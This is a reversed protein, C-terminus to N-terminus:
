SFEKASWEFGYEDISDWLENEKENQKASILKFLEKRSNQNKSRKNNENKLIKESRVNMWVFEM